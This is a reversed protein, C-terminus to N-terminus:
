TELPITTTVQNSDTEYIHKLHIILRLRPFIRRGEYLAGLVVISLMLVFVTAISSITIHLLYSTATVQCLLHRLWPLLPLM